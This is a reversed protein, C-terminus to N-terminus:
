HDNLNRINSLFVKSNLTQSVINLDLKVQSNLGVVVVGLRAGPCNHEKSEEKGSVPNIGKLIDLINHM